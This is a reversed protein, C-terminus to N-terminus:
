GALTLVHCARGTKPGCLRAVTGQWDEGSSALGPILILPRGQGTIDVTFAAPAAARSASALLVTGLLILTQLTRKM